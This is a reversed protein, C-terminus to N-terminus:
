LSPKASFLMKKHFPGFIGELKESEKILRVRRLCNSKHIVYLVIATKGLFAKSHPCIVLIFDNKKIRIKSLM